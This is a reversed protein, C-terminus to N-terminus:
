LKPMEYGVSGALIATLAEMIKKIAATITKIKNLFFYLIAVKEAAAKKNTKNGTRLMIGLDETDRMARRQSYKGKIKITMSM